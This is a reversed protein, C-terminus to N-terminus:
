IKLFLKTLSSTTFDETYIVLCQQFEYTTNSYSEYIFNTTFFMM